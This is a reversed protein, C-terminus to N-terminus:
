KCRTNGSRLSVVAVPRYQAHSSRTWSARWALDFSALYQAVLYYWHHPPLSQPGLHACQNPFFKTWGYGRRARKPMRNQLNRPASCVVVKCTCVCDEVQELGCLRCICRIHTNPIEHHKKQDGKQVIDMLLVLESFIICFRCALSVGLLTRLM